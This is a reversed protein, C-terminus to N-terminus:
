VKIAAKCYPCQATTPSIWTVAAASIAAGCTPCHAPLALVAKRAAEAAAATSAAAAAQDAAKQEARAAMSALVWQTVGSIAALILIGPFWNGTYFLIALGILWIASQVAGYLGKLNPEDSDKTTSEKVNQTEAM